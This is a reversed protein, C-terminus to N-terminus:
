DHAHVSKVNLFLKSPFQIRMSSISDSSAPNGRSNASGAASGSSCPATTPQYYVTGNSTSMRKVIYPKEMPSVESVTPIRSEIRGSSKGMHDESDSSEDDNIIDDLEGAEPADCQFM